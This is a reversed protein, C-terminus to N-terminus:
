SWLDIPEPPPDDMEPFCDEPGLPELSRLVELLNPKPKQAEIILRDRDRKIVATKGPLEWEKPIRVAQSRGNRFIAVTKESQM